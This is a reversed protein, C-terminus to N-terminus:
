YNYFYIGLACLGWVIAILLHINRVFFNDNDKELNSKINKKIKENDM